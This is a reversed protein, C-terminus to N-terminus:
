IKLKGMSLILIDCVLPFFQIHANSHQEMMDKLDLYSDRYFRYNSMIFSKLLILSRHIESNVWHYDTYNLKQQMYLHGTNKANALTLVANFADICEGAAIDAPLKNPFM